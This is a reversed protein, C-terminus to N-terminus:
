FDDGQELLYFYVTVSMRGAEEGKALVSLTSSPGIIMKGELDLVTYGKRFTSEALTLGPTHGTMGTGVGDWKLGTAGLTRTSTTNTNRLSLTATNTDPQTAGAMFAVECCRDHNTDGGNWSVAISAIALQNVTDTLQMWGVMGQTTTIDLLLTAALFTRGDITKVLELQRSQSRVLLENDASVGALYASGVGSKITMSM